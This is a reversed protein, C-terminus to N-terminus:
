RHHIGRDRVRLYSMVTADKLATQETMGIGKLLRQDAYSPLRCSRASAPTGSSASASACNRSPAPTRSFCMRSRRRTGENSLQANIRQRAQEETLNNRSQLRAIADAESAQTVWLEDCLDTWGAEIMIAAELVAIKTGGERLDSITKEALARIRPWTIENLAKLEDPDAFVIAGLKRRDIQRTEPDMLDDGWRALIDKWADTDPLYAQHGM